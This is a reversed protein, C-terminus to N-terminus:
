SSSLSIHYFFYGFVLNWSFGDLPLRTTGYPRVHHLQCMSEAHTSAVTPSFPATIAEHGPLICVASDRGSVSYTRQKLYTFMSVLSQLRSTPLLKSIIWPYSKNMTWQETSMTWQETSVIVSFGFHAEWNHM